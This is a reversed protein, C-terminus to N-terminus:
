EFITPNQFESKMTMTAGVLHPVKLIFGPLRVFVLDFVEFVQDIRVVHLASWIAPLLPRM